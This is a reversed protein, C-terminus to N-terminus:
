LVCYEMLTTAMLATDVLVDVDGKMVTVVCGAPISHDYLHIIIIHSVLLTHASSPPLLSHGVTCFPM